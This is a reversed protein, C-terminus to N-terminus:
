IKKLYKTMLGFLKEKDIPKSIFDDCGHKLALEKDSYTSYATQAIIPLNPFISKIKETADYGNMVPMKIDMLVLDINKNKICMDIAEQGNKAHIINYEDVLVDELLEQIYLYNVEEDEAVLITYIQNNESNNSISKSTYDRETKIPKYPITVYFTSGKGKESVVTIDGGLLQTNEKSISLGLGLGGHKSSIDKDEQSFREFITKHNKASIGIGTDKVYLVLNSNDITYGFEIFGENTFKLANELLNSVIKNLKSKDSIIHSQNDRLAKNLYLPINREKSKLNVISFLEMLFDNLCFEKEYLKEQKTELNSIELIDDIIRLLQYSSNQVIKAFYNRKEETLDPNDLLESFGIIGNMPTRIEHSMNKLFETKLRNANEAKEKAAILEQEANKQRTITETYFLVRDPSLFALKIKLWEYNHLSRTLYNYEFEINSKKIYCEFIKEVVFPLDAYINKASLGIFNKAHNKTIENATDNVDTLIFDDNTFSWIFISTPNSNYYSKFIRESELAQDKAKILAQESKKIESIDQHAGLMRIPKGDKNRIAMGRCRIWVISGNKHTYRVIQDYLHESNECHKIFNDTALKLDDLNIIGQWATSKHPMEEPNYGLTTWFRSNMWENEPNELDWYWFGDLSSEQIFDFISEDTKILEYLEKRLYNDKNRSDM